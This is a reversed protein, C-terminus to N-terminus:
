ACGPRNSLCVNGLCGDASRYVGSQSLGQDDHCHLFLSRAIARVDAYTRETCSRTWSVCCRDAGEGGSCVSTDPGLANGSDMYRFLENCRDLSYVDDYSCRRSDPRLGTTHSPFAPPNQALAPALAVLALLASLM